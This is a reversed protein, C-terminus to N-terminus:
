LCISGILPNLCIIGMRRNSIEYIKLWSVRYPSQSKLLMGRVKKIYNTVFMNVRYPSQSMCEKKGKEYERTVFMNVRYPSQSEPEVELQKVFVDSLNKVM